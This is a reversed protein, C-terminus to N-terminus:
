SQLRPRACGPDPGACVGWSGGRKQQQPGPHSASARTGDGIKTARAPPHRHSCRLCRPPCSRTLASAVVAVPEVARRSTKPLPKVGSDAAAAAPVADVDTPWDCRLAVADAVGTAALLVRRALHQLIRGFPFRTLLKQALDTPLPARGSAEHGASIGLVQQKAHWVRPPPALSPPPAPAPQL